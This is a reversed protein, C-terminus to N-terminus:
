VVVLVALLLLFRCWPRAEAAMVVAVVVVVLLFGCRAGPVLGDGAAPHRPELLSAPREADGEL